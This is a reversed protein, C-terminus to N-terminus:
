KGSFVDHVTRPRNLIFEGRWKTEVSEPLIHANQVHTKLASLVHSNQKTTGARGSQQKGLAEAAKRHATKIKRMNPAPVLTPAGAAGPRMGYKAMREANRDKARKLCNSPAGHSPPVSRLALKPPGRACSAMLVRPNVHSPSLTNKQWYTPINSSALSMNTMRPPRQQKPEERRKQCEHINIAREQVPTRKMIAGVGQLLQQPLVKGPEVYCGKSPKAIAPMAQKAKKAPEPKVGTIFPHQLADDASLREHPWWVLMKTIFDCFQADKTKILSLLSRSAPAGYYMDNSMYGPELEHGQKGRTKRYLPRCADDFHGDARHGTKILYRPPVGICEMIMAMMEEENDGPFLPSGNVMEAAICGLSWIDIMRGYKAGLIVEPARYYRSQLYSYLPSREFCSIGFDIVKLSQKGSQGGVMINEPKLDCHIIQLKNLSSVCRLLDTTFSRVKAMPLGQQGYDALMKQLNTNLLEFVLCIHGRFEFHELLCVCTAMVNTAVDGTSNKLEELITVEQMLQKKSEDDNRVVKLAVMKGVKHDFCKVVQGFAGSGLFRIVEYRYNIHDRPVIGLYHGEYDDYGKNNGDRAASYSPRYKIAMDGVFYVEDNKSTRLEKRELPELRNIFRRLAFEAWKEYAEKRFLTSEWQTERHPVFGKRVELLRQTKPQVSALRSPAPTGSSSPTSSTLIESTPSATKESETRKNGLKNTIHKNGDIVPEQAATGATAANSISLKSLNDFSLLQRRAWEREDLWPAVDGNELKFPTSAQGDREQQRAYLFEWEVSDGPIQATFGHEQGVEGGPPAKSRHKTSRRPAKRIERAPKAICAGDSEHEKRPRIAAHQASLGGIARRKGTYAVDGLDPPHDHAGGVADSSQRSRVAVDHNDDYEYDEEESDSTYDDSYLTPRQNVVHNRAVGDQRREGDM